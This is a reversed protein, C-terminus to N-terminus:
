LPQCNEDMFTQQILFGDQEHSLGATPLSGQALYESSNPLLLQKRNIAMLIGFGRVEDTAHPGPLVQFLGL